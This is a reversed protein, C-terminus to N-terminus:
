LAMSLAVLTLFSRTLRRITQGNSGAYHALLLVGTNERSQSQLVTCFKMTLGSPM